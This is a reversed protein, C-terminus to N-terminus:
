LLANVKFKVTHCFLIYIWSIKASGAIFAKWSILLNQSTSGRIDYEKWFLTVIINYMITATNNQKQIRKSINERVQFNSGAQQPHTPTHPKSNNQTSTTSKPPKNLGYIITNSLLFFHKTQLHNRSQYLTKM